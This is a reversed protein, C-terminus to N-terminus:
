LLNKTELSCERVVISLRYNAVSVSFLICICQAHPTYAFVRNAIGNKVSYQRFLESQFKEQRFM